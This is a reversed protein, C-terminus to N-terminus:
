PLAGASRSAALLQGSADPRCSTALALAAQEDLPAAGDFAVIWAIGAAKCRQELYERVGGGGCVASALRGGRPACALMPLLCEISPLHETQAVIMDVGGYRLALQTPLDDAMAIEPTVEFVSAGQAEFARRLADRLADEVALVVVEGLLAVASGGAAHLRREFGGYHIEAELIAAPPLGQYRDHAAARTKIEMDQRLIDITMGLYHQNVGAAWAGLRADLVARPAPDLGCEAATRGLTAAAVYAEYHRAYADVDTGLMPERKIFVAHQPTAPGERTMAALDARRAYAQWQPGDLRRLLLPYGAHRSLAARLRAIQL